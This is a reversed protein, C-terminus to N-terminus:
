GCSVPWASKQCGAADRVGARRQARFPNAEVSIM